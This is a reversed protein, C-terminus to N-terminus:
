PAPEVDAAWQIGGLLHKRFDPEAFSEKTHGGGTYFARGGDYAHCWAISHEGEMVAGTYTTQDLTMLIRVSEAPLTRYDYWEDTRAWRALLHRTSPHDRDIVDIEAPQIPPHSRFQAGVLGAYWPWDYETDAAAHIGVFGNGARVWREMAGQQEDSLIDGTTSLFVIVRYPALGDDTFVAADESPTVAFGHEPGLKALSDVGTPISDHRFGATKSFVLVRFPDAPGARDDLSETPQTLGLTTMTLATLAFLTRRQHHM